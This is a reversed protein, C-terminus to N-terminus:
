EWDTGEGSGGKGCKAANGGESGRNNLHPCGQGGFADPKGERYYRTGEYDAPQDHREGEQKSSPM